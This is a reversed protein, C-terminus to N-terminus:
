HKTITPCLNKKFFHQTNILALETFVRAYEQLALIYPMADKYKAALLEVDRQITTQLEYYDFDKLDM